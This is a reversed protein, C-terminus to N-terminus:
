GQRGRRRAVPPPPPNDSPLPTPALVPYGNPGIAPPSFGPAGPPGVNPFGNGRVLAPIRGPHAPPPAPSFGSGYAYPGYGSVDASGATPDESDDRPGSAIPIRRLRDRRDPPDADRGFVMVEGDLSPRPKKAPGEAITIRRVDEARLSSFERGPHRHFVLLAGREEPADTSLIVGGGRLQLAWFRDARGAAPSFLLLTLAFAIRRM